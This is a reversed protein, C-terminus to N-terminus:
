KGSIDYCYLKDQDRLLLKGAAVVPYAWAHRDSRPPEFRGKEVYAKPNAEVLAMPGNEGRVYFHGDAYTVSGKGVSRNQWVVEGTKVDLCVLVANTAASSAAM